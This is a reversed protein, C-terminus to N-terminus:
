GKKFVMKKHHEQYQRREIFGMTHIIVILINAATDVEMTIDLVSWDKRQKMRLWINESRLVLLCMLYTDLAIFGLKELQVM